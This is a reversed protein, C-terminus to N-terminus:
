SRKLYCQVSSFLRARANSGYSNQEKAYPDVIIRSSVRSFFCDNLSYILAHEKLLITLAYMSKTDSPELMINVFESHSTAMEFLTKAYEDNSDNKYAINCLINLTKLVPMPQKSAKLEKFGLKLSFRTFQSWSHSANLAEFVFDGKRERLHKVGDSLGQCLIHLKQVNKSEKKLTLTIIHLLVQIMNMVLKGADDKLASCRNYVCQLIQIYSMSVMDLKDGIQLITNCAKSCTEYDFANNILYSVATVNEEIWVKTDKPNCLYFLIEPEYHTRLRQLFEQSWKFNLNSAIIPFVINSEKISESKMMYEVFIPVFKINKSILFSILSVTTDTIKTALLSSFTDAFVDYINSECSCFLVIHYPPHIQYSVEM